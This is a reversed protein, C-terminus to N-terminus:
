GAIDKLLTREGVGGGRTAGTPRGSLVTAESRRAGWEEEEGGRDEQEAGGKEVEPEKTEM